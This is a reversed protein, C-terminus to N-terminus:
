AGFQTLHHDLHKYFMTNWEGITLKGFSHSEKGDFHGEGLELTRDIYDLIRKKEVNFDKDDKIIFAPATPGSKKYPKPGVVQNKVFAKLMFKVFANPKRHKNDYVLEYAVNCHALMQAITMKGWLRHTDLTLKNLRAKIEAVETPDFVSKM